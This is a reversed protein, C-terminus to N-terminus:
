SHKGLLEDRNFLGPFFKMWLAVVVLTGVGGLVVAGVSGLLAAAVGSEFDGLQNSTGIFVSNVASVRGRLEDPTDLQVLTSRVVVSVMDSAGLVALAACSLAFNESLGFVITALGFVAVAGYMKKGVGRKLPRRVLFLSMCLAGVSPAARLIGLGWPGTALIDKAFVPLLATAGGLLVSFLDMSIAGLIDPRNRIYEIGGMVSRWSAPEKRQTVAPKPIGAALFAALLCALGSAAYVAGPGAMYLLGGAAPGLIVATRWVSASWALMRPFQAPEVLGPLLAQLSPTEFARATGIMFVCGFIGYLGLAGTVSGVALTLAMLGQLLQCVSAITKRDVRDAVHGAVLTLLFQPLFEVLGVLGLNFVSGTLEYVQWGIAVASMHYAFGSASRSLWFRTFAANQFIDSKLVSM